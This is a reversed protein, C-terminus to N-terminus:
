LLFLVTGPQPNDEGLIDVTTVTDTSLDDKSAGELTLTETFSLRILLDDGVEAASAQLAELNSFLGGTFELRDNEPDFDPVTLTFPPLVGPPGYTFVQGDTTDGAPQQPGSPSQASVQNEQVQVQEQKEQNAQSDSMM